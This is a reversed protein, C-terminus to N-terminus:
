LIFSFMPFESIVEKDNGAFDYDQIVRSARWWWWNGTLFNRPAWEMFIAEIGQLARQWFNGQLFTNSVGEIVENPPLRLEEIDLWTWFRSTRLGSSDKTWLFGRKHLIELFGEANSLLPLFIPGLLALSINKVGLKSRLAALLDYVVGFSGVATLSFVLALALTFAEGGTAGTIMALMATQVYGFYYYSIAYGSLWPDNPPMSPSRLIANIFALEMPKETAVIAPNASRALVFFVFAIAFLVEITIVLRRNDRLWANLEGKDLDRWAWVSLAILVALAILLGGPDNQLVGLSSLLWFAFGWLLMGLVRSFAFGRGPLAPLMRYAIPFAILGIATIALYWLIVIQM